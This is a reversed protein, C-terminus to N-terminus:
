ERDHVHCTRCVMHMCPAHNGRSIEEAYMAEKAPHWGLCICLLCCAPYGCHSSAHWEHGHWATVHLISRVQYEAFKSAQSLKAGVRRVLSGSRKVIRSQTRPQEAMPAHQQQEAM